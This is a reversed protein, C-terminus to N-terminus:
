ALVEPLLTFLDDLDSLRLHGTVSLRLRATGKPVSPPRIARIDFGAAQLATAAALAAHDTGCLIPQIQSQTAPLGIRLTLTRAHNRLRTAHHRRAPDERLVRLAARVAAAMLPSPATAYIFPRARDILADIVVREACILAGSAGLAKGCTHLTILACDPDHPALGAGNEGYLGTAHAEDLVLVADQACALATLADIPAFDGDMSYVTEAAIWIRGTGGAARWIRIRDEADAPDNHRFAHSQAASLRLGDHVSAHILADYLVLDGAMPLTSFIAQNAQYGGGMYLSAESDFFAAAEAELREFEAENGRLLRSGGAGLPVGRMLADLLAQRMPPADRLGLYDNSSFDLGSATSLHRRRGRAEKHLLRAAHRPFRTM